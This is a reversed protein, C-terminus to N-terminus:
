NLLVGNGQGAFPSFLLRVLKETVPKPILCDRTIIVSQLQDIGGIKGNVAITPCSRMRRASMKFATSVRMPPTRIRPSRPVAFDVAERAKAANNGLTFTTFSQRKPHSGSLGEVQHVSHLSRNSPTEFAFM